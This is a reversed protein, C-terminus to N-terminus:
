LGRSIKRGGAGGGGAGGAASLAPAVSTSGDRRMVAAAAGLSAAALTEMAGVGSVPGAPRGLHKSLVASRRPWQIAVRLEAIPANPVM